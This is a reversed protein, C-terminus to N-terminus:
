KRTLSTTRTTQGTTTGGQRNAWYPSGGQGYQMQMLQQYAAMQQMMMQMYLQQMMMQQYMMQMQMMQQYQYPNQGFGNQNYANQNYPNVGAYSQGFSNARSQVGGNGVSGFAGSRAMSTAQALPITNPSISPNAMPTTLSMQTQRNYPNLFGSAQQMPNMVGVGQGGPSMMGMGQCMGGKQMGGGKGQGHAPAVVLATCLVCVLSYAILHSRRM